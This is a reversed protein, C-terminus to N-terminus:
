SEEFDTTYNRDKTSLGCATNQYKLEFKNEM